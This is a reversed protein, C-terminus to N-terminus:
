IRLRRVKRPGVSKRSIKPREVKVEEEDRSPEISMLTKRPRGRGRKPRTESKKETKRLCGKARLHAGPYWCECRSCYWWDGPQETCVGECDTKPCRSQNM